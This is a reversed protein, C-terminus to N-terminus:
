FYPHGKWSGKTSCQFHSSLTAKEDKGHVRKELSKHDPPLFFRTNLTLFIPRNGSKYSLWSEKTRHLCFYVWVLIFCLSNIIPTYSPCMNAWHFWCTSLWQFGYNSDGSHWTKKHRYGEVMSEGREEPWLKWVGLGFIHGLAKLSLYGASVSWHSKAAIRFERSLFYSPSLHSSTAVQTGIDLVFCCLQSYWLYPQWSRGSRYYAPTSLFPPTPSLYCGSICRSCGIM